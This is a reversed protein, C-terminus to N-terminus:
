NLYLYIKVYSTKKKKLDLCLINNIPYSQIILKVIYTSKERFYCNINIKMQKKIKTPYSIQTIYKDPLM